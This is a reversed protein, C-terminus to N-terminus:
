IEFVYTALGYQASRSINKATLFYAGLSLENIKSYLGDIVPDLNSQHILYTEKQIKAMLDEVGQKYHKEQDLVAFVLFEFLDSKYRLSSYDEPYLGLEESFMLFTERFDILIRM